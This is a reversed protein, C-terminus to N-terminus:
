ILLRKRYRICNGSDRIIYSPWHLRRTQYHIMIKREDKIKVNKRKVCPYQANQSQIDEM